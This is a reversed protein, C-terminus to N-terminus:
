LFLNIFLKLLFIICAFLFCFARSVDFFLVAAILYGPFLGSRSSFFDKWEWQMDVSGFWSRFRLLYLEHDATQFSTFVFSNTQWQLIYKRKKIQKGWSHPVIPIFLSFFFQKNFYKRSLYALTDNLITSLVNLVPRLLLDLHNLVHNCIQIYKWKTSENRYRQSTKSIGVVPIKWACRM